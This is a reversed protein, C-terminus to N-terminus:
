SVMEDLSYLKADTDVIGVDVIQSEVTEPEVPAILPPSVWKEPRRNVISDPKTAPTECESSQSKHYLDEDDSDYDDSDMGNLKMFHRFRRREEPSMTSPDINAASNGSGGFGFLNLMRLMHMRRRDAQRPNRDDTSSSKLKDMFKKM